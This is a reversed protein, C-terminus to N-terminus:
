RHVLRYITKGAVQWSQDIKAIGFAAVDWFPNGLPQCDPDECIVFLQNTIKQHLDKLPAKELELFYRYPPDYNREALLALNFEEGKSNDIIFQSVRETNELQNNASYRLPNERLSSVAAISFIFIAALKFPLTKKLLFSIFFGFLIFWAPYIFAFYHDVLQNQYFSLGLLGFGIWLLVLLFPKKHKEFDKRKIIKIFLGCAALFGTVALGLLNNKGALLRTVILNTDSIISVVVMKLSFGIVGGEGALLSAFAKLNRGQHKFDFLVLPFIMLVFVLGALLLYRFFLKKDKTKRLALFVLLFVPVLLILGLYHSSLVMSLSFSLLPLLRFKDKQWVLWCVWISLLSFFPMINPNWSFSSYKIVVPSIAYLFASILGAKDGFWNTTVKWVLWVTAIGLFAVAVAPGVPNFNFLLLFPAIFYYYWPTLYLSGVSTQPGIFMLDKETLFRKVVVVDRGQDGLFEMYGSINHLRFFGAVVLILLVPWNNRLLKETKSFFGM